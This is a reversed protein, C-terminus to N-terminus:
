ETSETNGPEDPVGSMIWYVQASMFILTLVTLGFVKFNIWFAESFNYAVVLNLIGVLVFFGVWILNLM